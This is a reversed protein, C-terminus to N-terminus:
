KEAENDTEAQAEEEEAKDKHENWVQEREARYEEYKQDRTAGINNYKNVDGEAKAQEQEKQLDTDTSRYREHMESLVKDRDQQTSAAM